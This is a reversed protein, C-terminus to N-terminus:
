DGNLTRLLLLAAGDTTAQVVQTHLAILDYLVSAIANIACAASANWWAGHRARAARGSTRIPTPLENPRSKRM